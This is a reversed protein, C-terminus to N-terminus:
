RCLAADGRALDLWHCRTLVVATPQTMDVLM